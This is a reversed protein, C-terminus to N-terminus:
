WHVCFFPNSSKGTHRQRCIIDIVISSTMSQFVFSTFLCIINFLFWYLFTLLYIHSFRIRPYLFGLISHTMISLRSLRTADALLFMVCPWPGVVCCVFLPLFLTYGRTSYVSCFSIASTLSIGWTWMWVVRANNTYRLIIDVSTLAEVMGVFIGCHHTPPDDGFLHVCGFLLFTFAHSASTLVKISMGKRIVITWRWQRHAFVYMDFFIHQARLFVLIPGRLCCELAPSVSLVTM